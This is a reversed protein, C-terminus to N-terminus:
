EIVEDALLQMTNSVTLGLAKATKLNITLPFRTPQEVPLDAPAAGRMIKHAYTAAKRFFEASGQGYSMLGGAVVFERSPFMTPLRHALALEAILSRNDVYSGSVGVLVGQVGQQGLAVFASEIEPATRAEMPVITIGAQRAANGAIRLLIAYGRVNPNGLVAIRSRKAVVEALLELQKPASDDASSALGTVNGGPRALSAVRGIGVPDVNGVLIIPITRTAAVAADTSFRGASLIMDAKQRVLEAAREEASNWRGNADGRDLVYDEGEVYGLDRMGEVFGASNDVRSSDSLIGIRWVKKAQQGRAALPWILNSGTAAGLGAIFARRGIM